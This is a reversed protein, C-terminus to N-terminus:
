VARKMQHITQGLEDMEKEEQRNIEALVKKEWLEKHKEMVRLEKAADIYYRRMRKVQLEAEEIVTHQEEIEKDKDLEDDKLKRVFAMVTRVDKAESVGTNMKHDLEQRVDRRKQIIDEKEQELDKLKKKEKELQQIAKALAVEARKKMREKITLLAKLRYKPKKKM